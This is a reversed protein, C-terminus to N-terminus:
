KLKFLATTATGDATTMTLAYCAGAVKPTAWNYVFQGGTTDYRLSTGGTATVEVADQSAGTDCAIKAASFTVRSTDTVQTQGAYVRFKVPVTSGNKVTNLVGNMDVPQFFGATTWPAVTYSRTSTSSNGAVDSATATLTHSGVAASYGTVTCGNPGSLADSATCTPAAPTSGWTYSADAAIGADFAATPATTDVRIASFTASASNGATDTCTGTVSQADGDTSVTQDPTVTAVGSGNADDVCSFHVVVNQNTWTGGAYSSGNSTASATITPPTSDGALDIGVVSSNACDYANNSTVSITYQGDAPYTYSWSQWPTSGYNGVAAVSSAFVTTTSGGGTVALQVYGNDNYPMYDGASFFAWGNLTQGAQASFTQTLQNTYCGSGVVAFRSGDPASHGGYGTTVSGSGSWGTLDGTEFGPNILAPSSASATAPLGLIVGATVSTVAAIVGLARPWRVWQPARYGAAHREDRGTQAPERQMKRM